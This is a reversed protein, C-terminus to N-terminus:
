ARKSGDGTLKECFCKAEDSIGFLSGYALFLAAARDPPYQDWPEHCNQFTRQSTKVVAIPQNNQPLTLYFVLRGREGVKLSLAKTKKHYFISAM